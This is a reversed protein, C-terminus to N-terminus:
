YSQTSTRRPAHDAGPGSDYGFDSSGVPDAPDRDRRTHRGARSRYYGEPRDLPDFKGTIFFGGAEEVHPQLSRTVLFTKGTGSPGTVLTLEQQQQQKQYDCCRRYAELLQREEQDRAYLGHGKLATWNLRSQQQSSPPLPQSKGQHPSQSHTSSKGASSDASIAGIPIPQVEMNPSLSRFSPSEQSRGEALSPAASRAREEHM